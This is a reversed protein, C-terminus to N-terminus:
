VVSKRDEYLCVVSAGADNSGLGYLNGDIEIPTFPDRSWSAVPRVTDIHSNLLINPKNPDQKGNRVLINNGFRETEFGEKQIHTQLYDAVTEESRSFSPISLIGKLLDIAQYYAIDIDMNIHNSNPM